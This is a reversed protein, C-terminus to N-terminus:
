TKRSFYHFCIAQRGQGFLILDRLLVKSFVLKKVIKQTVIYVMLPGLESEQTQEWPACNCCVKGSGIRLGLSSLFAKELAVKDKEKEPNRNRKKTRDKKIERERERERARERTRKSEKSRARGRERICM